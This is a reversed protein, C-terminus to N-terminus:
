FKSFTRFDKIRMELYFRTKMLALIQGPKLEFSEVDASGIGIRMELNYKENITKLQNNISKQVETITESISFKLKSELENRIKGEAIWAAAKHVVNKTRFQIDIDNMFFGNNIADYRPKGKIILTGNVSGAVDTVVRFYEYDCNTVINSLTISKGGETFTKGELNAKILPNIDITKIDAMIRFVSSDPINESWYVKPLNTNVPKPDPKYTTFTSLGQINIKGLSSFKNNIVKNLQFKEPKIYIWGNMDPNIQIPQDFITLVERMKTKLTFSERVSDDISKEIMTKSKKIIADSITEIPVNLGAISLKPKEVWRHFSLKTKTKMNWLSDVDLDSIFSMEIVGKASLDALFTKKLVNVAVPVVVLMSKGEIEVTAEKPKSLTIKIDYDPIDFNGKFAEAIANNFTDQIGTKDLRYNIVLDTYFNKIVEPTKVAAPIAKKSSCALVGTLLSLITIFAVFKNASM